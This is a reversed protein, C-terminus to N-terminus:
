IFSTRRQRRRGFTADRSQNSNDTWGHTTKCSHFSDDARARKIRDSSQMLGNIHWVNTARQLFLLLAIVGENLHLLFWFYAKVCMHARLRRAFFPMDCLSSVYWSIRVSINENLVFYSGVRPLSSQSDHHHWRGQPLRRRSVPGRYFSATLVAAQPVAGTHPFTEITLNDINWLVSAHSEHLREIRHNCCCFLRRFFFLFLLLPTEESTSAWSFHGIQEQAESDHCWKGRTYIFRDTLKPMFTFLYAWFFSPIFIIFIIRWWRTWARNFVRKSFHGDAKVADCLFFLFELLWELVWLQVQSDKPANMHPSGAGADLDWLSSRHGCTM